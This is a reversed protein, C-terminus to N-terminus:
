GGDSRVNPAHNMRARREGTTEYDLVVRTEHDVETVRSYYRLSGNRVAYDHLNEEMFASVNHV